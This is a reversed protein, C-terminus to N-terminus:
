EELAKVLLPSARAQRFAPPRFRALEVSPCTIASSEVGAADLTDQLIM